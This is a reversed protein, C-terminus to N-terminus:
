RQQSEELDFLEQATVWVEVASQSLERMRDERGVGRARDVLDRICPPPSDMAGDTRGPGRHLCKRIRATIVGADETRGSTDSEHAHSSQRGIRQNGASTLHQNQYFAQEDEKGGGDHVTSDSASSSGHSRGDVTAAAERMGRLRATFREFVKVRREAAEAREKWTQAEKMAQRLQQSMTGVDAIEQVELQRRLQTAEEAKSDLQRQLSRIQAHLMTTSGPRPTPTSASHPLLFEVEQRINTTSSSPRLLNLHQAIPPQEPHPIMTGLSPPSQLSARNMEPVPKRSPTPKRFLMIQPKDLPFGQAANGVGMPSEKRLVVNENVSSKVEPDFMSNGKQNINGSLNRSHQQNQSTSSPMRASQQTWASGSRSSRISKEPSQSYHSVLSQTRSQPKQRSPSPEKPEEGEFMAAMAKVAGQKKAVQAVSPRAPTKAPANTVGSWLQSAEATLSRLPQSTGGPFTDLRRVQQFTVEHEQSNGMSTPHFDNSQGRGSNGSPNIHM